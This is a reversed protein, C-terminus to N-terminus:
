ANSSLNDVFNSFAHSHRSLSVQTLLVMRRFGEKKLCTFIKTNEKKDPFDVMKPHPLMEASLNAFDRHKQGSHMITLM